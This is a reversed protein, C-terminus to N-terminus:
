LKYQEVIETLSRALDNLDQAAKEAQRTSALSQVTAQNINQMALAIQEVGSAQQRGGAMMQASAQASEKIVGALQEIATGAQAALQLGQDVVKDGEETAMVTANIGNQIDSLITRVQSTAQRSQEALNRVETAVVAFGKGHEGARAAEVAANLALINSQAAIDSVTAIIGGIQQTQESLALINEAISEVRAKIQGMNGITEQVAKQGSRSIQVTRQSTDVVEQTREISQEAIVKVQDVTTTTQSIAASQENAGSAQQTTAALIEAASSSLERVTEQTAGLLRANEITVALQDAMIQLVMVDDKDYAAERKSQVDLAGIIREGVKLPLAMESRTEPLLPNDFYVADAGVDLAIRPSGTGTVYGVVGQEGVRLKHGKALMRQGGESNAAQLVAYDNDEDLLFIGAHYFGFQDHVMHTVQSLLTGLDHIFTAAQSMKATAKLQAVLHELEQTQTELERNSAAMSRENRRAHKFAEQIGRTAIHIMLAAFVFHATQTVWASGLTNEAFPLLGQGEAYWISLGAAASAVAVGIGVYGGSLLGAILVVLVYSGFTPARVGGSTIILYTIMVWLMSSQALSALQVNDRRMLYQITVEILVFAAGIMVSHLSFDQILILITGVVAITLFALSIAHLLSATRTKDEDNEFVPAAFFQRIWSGEPKTTVPMMKEQSM